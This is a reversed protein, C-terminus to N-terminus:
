LQQRVRVLHRLRGVLGDGLGAVEPAQTRVAEETAIGRLLPIHPAEHGPRASGEHRGVRGVQDVVTAAVM